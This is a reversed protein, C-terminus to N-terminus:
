TISFVSDINGVIHKFMCLFSSRKNVNERFCTLVVPVAPPKRLGLLPM